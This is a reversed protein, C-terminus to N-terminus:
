VFARSLLAKLEFIFAHVIQGENSRLNGKTQNMSEKSREDSGPDAQVNKLTWQTVPESVPEGSSMSIM